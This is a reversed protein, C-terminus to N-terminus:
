TNEKLLACLMKAGELINEKKSSIISNVSVKRISFQKEQFHWGTTNTCYKHSVVTNQSPM